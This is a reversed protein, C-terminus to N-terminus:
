GLTNTAYEAAVRKSSDCRVPLASSPVSMRARRIRRNRHLIITTITPPLLAHDRRALSFRSAGIM